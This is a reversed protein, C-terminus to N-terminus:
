KRGQSVKLTMEVVNCVKRRETDRLYVSIAFLIDRPHRNNTSIYTWIFKTAKFTYKALTQNRKLMLIQLYYM